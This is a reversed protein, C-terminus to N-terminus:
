LSCAGGIGAFFKMRVFTRHPLASVGQLADPRAEEIDIVNESRERVPRRFRDHNVTLHYSFFVQSGCKLWM